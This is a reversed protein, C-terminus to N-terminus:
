SPQARVITRLMLFSDRFAEGGRMEMAADYDQSAIVDAVSKTKAVSEM